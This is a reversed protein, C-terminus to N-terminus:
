NGDESINQPEFCQIPGQPDFVLYWKEDRDAIPYTKHRFNDEAIFKMKKITDGNVFESIAPNGPFKGIHTPCGPYLKLDIKIKECIAIDSKANTNEIM